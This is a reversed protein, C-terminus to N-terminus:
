IRAWMLTKSRQVLPCLDDPIPRPVLHDDAFSMEVFVGDRGDDVEINHKIPLYAKDFLQKCEKIVPLCDVRSLCHRFKGAKIFSHPM